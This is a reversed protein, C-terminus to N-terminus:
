YIYLGSALSSGDFEIDYEGANLVENVVEAVKRGLVDYVALEVQYQAPISFSIKTTPNFPNPYNGFLRFEKPKSDDEASTIGNGLKSISSGEIGLESNVLWIAFKVNDEELYKEPVSEIIKLAEDFEKKNFHYYFLDVIGHLEHITNRSYERLKTNFLLFDTESKDYLSLNSIVELALPKYEKVDEKSSIISELLILVGPISYAKYLFYLDSIAFM